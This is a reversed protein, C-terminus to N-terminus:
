DSHLILLNFEELTRTLCTTIIRMNCTLSGTRPTRYGAKEWTCSDQALGPPAPALDPFVPSAPGDCGCAGSNVTFLPHFRHKGLASPGHQHLYKLLATRIRLNKNSQLQSIKEERETKIAFTFMFHLLQLDSIQFKSSHPVEATLSQGM